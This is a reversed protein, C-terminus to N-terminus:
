LLSETPRLNPPVSLCGYGM